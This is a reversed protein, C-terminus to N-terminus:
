TKASASLTAVVPVILTLVLGYKLNNVHWFNRFDKTCLIAGGLLNKREVM